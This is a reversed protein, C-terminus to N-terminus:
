SSPITTGPGTTTTTPEVTTTTAETTSPNFTSLGLFLQLRKQVM